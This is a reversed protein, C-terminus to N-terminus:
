LQWIRWVRRPQGARQEVGPGLCFFHAYFWCHHRRSTPIRWGPSPRLHQIAKPSIGQVQKSSKYWRRLAPYKSDSLFTHSIKNAAHIDALRQLEDPTRVHFKKSRGAYKYLSYNHGGDRRPIKVEKYIGKPPPRDMWDEGLKRIALSTPLYCM